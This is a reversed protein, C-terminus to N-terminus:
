PTIRLSDVIAMLEVMDAAPTAAFDRALVVVRVGQVDLIWLHWRDGPGQTYISDEWPRFVEMDCDYEFPLQLDIRVGRWGALEVDVPSSAEYGDQEGFARALDDVSPGVVVDGRQTEGGVKGKCPDSHLREILGVGFGMGTPAGTGEVPFVGQSQFGMWGDPVTITFTMSENPPGFPRFYYDHAPLSGNFLVWPGPTGTPGM